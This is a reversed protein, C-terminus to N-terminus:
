RSPSIVLPCKKSFVGGGRYFIFLNAYKVEVSIRPEKHEVISVLFDESRLKSIYPTLDLAYSISNGAMLTVPAVSGIVGEAPLLRHWRGTKKDLARIETFVYPSDLFTVREGSDNRIRKFVVNPRDCSHSLTVTVGGAIGKGSLSLMLIAFLFKAVM